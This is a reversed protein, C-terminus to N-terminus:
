RGGSIPLIVGTVYAAAPSLLWVIGEAVEEATGATKMPITPAMKEIRDPAGANAHLETSILGPSVANM